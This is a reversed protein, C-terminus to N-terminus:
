NKKGIAHLLASSDSYGCKEAVEELSAGVQRMNQATRIKLKKLYSYPTEGVKEKFKRIFGNISLYCENAIKSILQKQGLNDHMIKLAKIIVKDEVIECNFKEIIKNVLFLTVSKLLNQSTQDLFEFRIKTTCQKCFIKFTEVAIKIDEDNFDDLCFVKKTIIPPMLEFNVYAHDLRSQDNEFSSYTHIYNVSSPILYLCNNKFPIKIDGDVYGGIGGTVYILRNTGISTSTIWNNYPAKESGAWYVKIESM